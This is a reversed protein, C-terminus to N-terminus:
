SSQQEMDTETVEQCTSLNRLLFTLHDPLGMEKLIKWTKQSGCLWLSQHLWYLLLLHKEPIGKNKKKKKIQLGKNKKHDLLHQCNSRQNRERKLDLKFMQLNEIWISNFGLKFSKSCEKALMHSLCLQATTQGSKPM